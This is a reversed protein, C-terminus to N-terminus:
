FTFKKYSKLIEKVRNFDNWGKEDKYTFTYRGITESRIKGKAKNSFNTIGAVLVTAALTIDAPCTTSYGFKATVIVNQHGTSFYGEKLQLKRKPDENSPYVRYDDSEIEVRTSDDDEGIELKSISMFDDIVMEISGDGDYVKETAVTDAIFNRGTLKDIYLEMAEIWANVQTLFSANITQITYNEINTKNTYGKM